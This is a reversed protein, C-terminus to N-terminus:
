VKSRFRGSSNTTDTIATAREKGYDTHSIAEFVSKQYDGFSQAAKMYKSSSYKKRAM